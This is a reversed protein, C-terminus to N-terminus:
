QNQYPLVFSSYGPIEAYFSTDNDLSVSITDSVTINQLSSSDITINISMAGSITATDPITTGSLHYLKLENSLSKFIEVLGITAQHTTNDFAITFEGVNNEDEVMNIIYMQGIESDSIEFPYPGVYPFPRTVSIKVECEGDTVTSPCEFIISGSTISLHGDLAQVDRGSNFVPEDTISFSFLPMNSIVGAGASIPTVSLDSYDFLKQLVPSNESRAQVVEGSITPTVNRWDYDTNQDGTKTLVQGSSGGTPVPMKDAWYVDDDDDGYKELVQGATGGSPLSGGGGGQPAYLGFDDDDVSIEAIKVGSQLIPTVVVTSGGEGSRERPPVALTKAEMAEQSKMTPNEIM